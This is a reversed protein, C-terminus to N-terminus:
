ACTTSNCVPRIASSHLFFESVNDYNLMGANTGEDIAENAVADADTNDERCEIQGAEPAESREM